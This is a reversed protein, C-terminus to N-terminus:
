FGADAESTACVADCSQQRCTQFAEYAEKVGTKATSDCIEAVCTAQETEDGSSQCSEVCTDYDDCGAQGATGADASDSKIDFCTSIASCCNTELCSQCQANQITFGGNYTPCANTPTTGGDSNTGSDAPRNVVTGGDTDDVTGSGTTCAFVFAGLAVSALLSVTTKKASSNM